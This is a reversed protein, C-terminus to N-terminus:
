GGRLKKYTESKRADFIQVDTSGPIADGYECKLREAQESM